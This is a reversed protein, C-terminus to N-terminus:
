IVDPFGRKIKNFFKYAVFFTLIAFIYYFILGIINPFYGFIVVSRLEEIIFTLPNAMIFKQMGLPVASIPYFVPSLFMLLTTTISILPNIDRLYVALSSLIWSLGVTLIVLPLFVLPVFFITVNVKGNLIIIAVLLVIFSVFFQFLASLVSVVSLIDLPFVVKKVFNINQTILTPSKNIVENFFNLVMLGVFLFIAFHNETDQDGIDWKAKFIVSFVFTYIILLLIPIVLSWAVGILSGKYKAELDRKLLQIIILKNKIIYSTM